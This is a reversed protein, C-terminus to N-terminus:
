VGKFLEIKNGEKLTVIAKKYGAKWGIHRGSVRKKKPINVINVKIVSVNYLKEIAKKISNKVSNDGVRFIYKNMSMKEHAKETVWPEILVNYSNIDANEKM